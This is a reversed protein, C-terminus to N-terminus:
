PHEEGMIATHRTNTNCIPHITNNQQTYPPIRCAEERDPITPFQRFSQRDTDERRQDPGAKPPRQWDRCMLQSWMHGMWSFHIDCLRICTGHKPLSQRHPGLCTLPPWFNEAIPAWARRLGPLIKLQWNCKGSDKDWTPWSWSPPQTINVGWPEEWLLIGLPNVKFNIVVFFLVSAM